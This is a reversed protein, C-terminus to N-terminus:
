RLFTGTSRSARRAIVTEVNVYIIRRSVSSTEWRICSPWCPTALRRWVELAVQDVEQAVERVVEQAAERVVEAAEVARHVAETRRVAETLHAVEM